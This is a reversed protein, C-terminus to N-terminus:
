DCSGKMVVVSTLTSYSRGDTILECTLTQQHNRSSSSRTLLTHQNACIVLSGDYDQKQKVDIQGRIQGIQNM